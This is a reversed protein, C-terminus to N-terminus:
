YITLSWLLITQMYKNGIQTYLLDKKSYKERPFFTAFGVYQFLCSAWPSCCDGLCWNKYREWINSIFDKLLTTFSAFIPCYIFFFTCTFLLNLICWSVLRLIRLRSTDFTFFFGSFIKTFTRESIVYLTFVLNGHDLKQYVYNYQPQLICWNVFNLFGSSILLLFM